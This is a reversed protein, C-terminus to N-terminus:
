DNLHEVFLRLGIRDSWGVSSAYSERIEQDKMSGPDHGSGRVVSIEQAGKEDLISGLDIVGKRGAQDSDLWITIRSYPKMKSLREETMSSGLIALADVRDGLAREIALADFVGETVILEERGKRSAWFSVRLNKSHLWKPERNILTRATYGKFRKQDYIPFVIRGRARGILSLGVRHRRIQDERIGRGQLYDWALQVWEDYEDPGQLLQFDSPLEPRIKEESLTDDLTLDQIDIKLLRQLTYPSKYGCNFCHGMGRPVKGGRLEIGLRFRTDPSTGRLSCFPCCIWATRGRVQVKIGKLQLGRILDM